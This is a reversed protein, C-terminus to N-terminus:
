MINQTQKKFSLRKSEIKSTLESSSATIKLATIKLSNVIVYM